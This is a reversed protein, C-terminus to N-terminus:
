IRWVMYLGEEVAGAHRRLPAEREALVTFGSRAALARLSTTNHAYRGSTQLVFDPADTTEVTFALVGGPTLKKRALAVLGSVDGVYIFVDTAAILDFTEATQDLYAGAESKQVHAYLGRASAATVMRQSLDVGVLVANPYVARVAAAFLGTGCGLDLVRNFVHDPPLATQIIGTLTQP